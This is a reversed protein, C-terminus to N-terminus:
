RPTPPSVKEIFCMRLWTYTIEVLGTLSAVVPTQVIICLTKERQSSALEFPVVSIGQGNVRLNLSLSGPTTLHLKGESFPFLIGLVTGPLNQVVHRNM